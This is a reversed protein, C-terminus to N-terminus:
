SAAGCFQLMFNFTLQSSKFRRNVGRTSFYWFKFGSNYGFTGLFLSEKDNADRRNVKFSVGMVPNKGYVQLNPQTKCLTQIQDEWSLAELDSFDAAKIIEVQERWEDNALKKVCEDILNAWEEFPRADEPFYKKLRGNFRPFILRITSIGALYKFGYAKSFLARARRIFNAKQKPSMKPTKRYVM